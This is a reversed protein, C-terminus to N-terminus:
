GGPQTPPRLPRLVHASPCRGPEAGPLLQVHDGVAPAGSSREDEALVVFVSSTAGMQVALACFSTTFSTM